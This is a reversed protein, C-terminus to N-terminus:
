KLFLIFYVAVLVVVIIALAAIIGKLNSSERKKRAYHQITEEVDEDLDEEIM